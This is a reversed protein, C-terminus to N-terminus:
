IGTFYYFAHIYEKLTHLHCTYNEIHKNLYKFTYYGCSSSKYLFNDSYKNCFICLIISTATSVIKTMYLYLENFIQEM